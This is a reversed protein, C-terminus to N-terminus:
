AEPLILEGMPPHCLTPHTGSSLAQAFRTIVVVKGKIGHVLNQM